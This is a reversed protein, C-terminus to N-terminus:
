VHKQEMLSQFPSLSLFYYPWHIIWFYLSSRGVGPIAESPSFSLPFSNRVFMLWVAVHIRIWIYIHTALNEPYLLQLMMYICSIKSHKSFILYRDELMLLEIGNLHFANTYMLRSASMSALRTRFINQLLSLSSLNLFMQSDFM